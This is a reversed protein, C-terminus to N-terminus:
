HITCRCEYSLISCPMLSSTTFVITSGTAIFNMLYLEYTRGPFSPPLQLFFDAALRLVSRDLSWGAFSLRLFTIQRFLLVRKPRVRALIKRIGRTHNYCTPFRLGKAM